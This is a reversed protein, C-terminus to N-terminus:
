GGREGWARGIMSFCPMRILSASVSVSGARSTKLLGVRMSTISIPPPLYTLISPLPLTSAKFLAKLSLPGLNSKIISALNYMNSSSCDSLLTRSNTLFHLIALPKWGWSYLADTCLSLRLCRAFKVACVHLNSM